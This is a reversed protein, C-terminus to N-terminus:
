KKARCGFNFRLGVTLDLHNLSESKGEMAKDLDEQEILIHRVNQHSLSGALFSLQCGLSVHRSLKLDYGVDWSMGMTHGTLKGPYALFFNDVYGVYGVAYNGVFCHRGDKSYVRACVMPGIFHVVIQNSFLYSQYEIEMSDEHTTYLVKGKIGAGLSKMFFWSIDASGITAWRLKEAYSHMDPALESDVKGFRYGGGFDIGIRLRPWVFTSVATSDSAQGRTRADAGASLSMLAACLLAAFTVKWTKM